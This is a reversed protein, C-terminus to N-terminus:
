THLYVTDLIGYRDCHPCITYHNNGYRTNYNNHLTTKYRVYIVVNDDDIKKSCTYCIRNKYSKNISTFMTHLSIFSGM